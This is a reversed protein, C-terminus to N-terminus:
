RTWGAGGGGGGAALSPCAGPAHAGARSYEHAYRQLDARASAAAAASRAELAESTQLADELAHLRSLLAESPLAAAALPPTALAPAAASSAQWPESGPASKVLRSDAGTHSEHQTKAGAASKGRRASAYAVAAAAVADVASRQARPSPATPPHLEASPLALTAATGFLAESNSGQLRRAEGHLREAQEHYYALEDSRASLM